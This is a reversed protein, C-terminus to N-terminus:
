QLYHSYRFIPFEPGLCPRSKERREGTVLDVEVDVTRESYRVVSFPQGCRPCVTLKRKSKTTKRCMM